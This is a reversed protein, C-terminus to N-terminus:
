KSGYLPKQDVNPKFKSSTCNSDVDSSAQEDKKSKRNGFGSSEPDLTVLIEDLKFHISELGRSTHKYIYIYIYM